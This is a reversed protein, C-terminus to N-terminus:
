NKDSEFVKLTTGDKLRWETLGNANRGLVMAAATSPSSFVYDETFELLNNQKGIVGNDILQDRLRMFNDTISPVTSGAAKSGKFVVFGDATPEGQADAGRGSKIYFTEEAQQVPSKTERKEEFVKHGLTNILIKINEIYEEMEARDSEAISSQTPTSNNKILYRNISKAMEFLRNELYKIHAKNLNEDKSIFVIAENWFDKQVLHQTLRKFVTEAEGIYVLDKGTEDKGFLLYVGPNTLDPRDTCAKVRIRPIKYAKGTWNSLECTMRGNPEGDILFLKITKGFKM